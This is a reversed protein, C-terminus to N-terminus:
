HLAYLNSNFLKDGTGVESLKSKHVYYINIEFILSTITPKRVFEM